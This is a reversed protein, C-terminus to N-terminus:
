LAEYQSNIHGDYGWDAIFKIIGNLLFVHSRSLSCVLVVEAVMIPSLAQTEDPNSLYKRPYGADM